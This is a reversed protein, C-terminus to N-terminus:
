RAILPLALQTFELRLDYYSDCHGAAEDTVPAVRVLYTGAADPVWVLVIDDWDYFWDQGAIPTVGDARYLDISFYVGWGMNFARLHVPHGVAWAPVNIKVWDVDQETHFTHTRTGGTHLKATAATNDSEFADAAAPPPAPVDLEVHHGSPTLYVVGPTVCRDGVLVERCPQRWNGGWYDGRWFEVDFLGDSNTYDLYGYSYSFYPVRRNIWAIIPSNPAAVGYVANRDPDAAASLPTLAIDTGLGAEGDIELTDGAVFDASSTFYAFGPSEALVTQDALTAGGRRHILRVQGAPTETRVTLEPSGQFVYATFSALDLVGYNGDAGRLYATAYDGPGVRGNLSINGSGGPLTGEYCEFTDSFFGDRNEFTALYPRDPGTLSLWDEISNLRGAFDPVIMSRTEAGDSVELRDGVALVEGLWVWFEGDFSTNTVTEAKLNDGPDFLRVTVDVYSQSWYGRAWYLHPGAVLTPASLTSTYQRNGQADYLYVYAYDGPQVDFGIPLAVSGDATTAAACHYDFDCTTQVAGYAEERTYASVSVLRGPATTGTVHNNAADLAFDAPAITVTRTMIGDQVTVVDGAIVEYANFYASFNGIPDATFSQQDIQLGGRILRATGAAGRHVIGYVGDFGTETNLQFASNYTYTGNGGADTVSVELDARNNLNAVGSVDATFRGAADATATWEALDWVCDEDRAVYVRGSVARNPLTRGEVQGVAADLSAVLPVVTFRASGDETSVEIIDGPLIHWTYGMQPCNEWNPSVSFYGSSSTRDFIEVYLQANRYIRVTVGQNAAAFGWVYSYTEDYPARIDAWASPPGAAAARAAPAPRHPAAARGMQAVAEPLGAACPPPGDAATATYSVAARLAPMEGRTRVRIAFQAPDLSFSLIEGQGQAQRLEALLPAAQQEAAARLLRDPLADRLAPDTAPLERPPPLGILYESIHFTPPSAQPVTSEVAAGALCVPLLLSLLVALWLGHKVAKDGQGGPRGGPSGEM